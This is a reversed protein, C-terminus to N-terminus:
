LITIDGFHVFLFHKLRLLQRGIWRNDANIDPLLTDVAPQPKVSGTTAPLVFFISIIRESKLMPSKITEDFKVLFAM